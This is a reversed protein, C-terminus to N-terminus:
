MRHLLWTVGQVLRWALYITTLVLLLKFHWPAGAPKELVRGCTPCAGEATMSTPNLFRECDECWPM